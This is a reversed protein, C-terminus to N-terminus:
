ERLKYAVIAEKRSPSSKEAISKQHVRLTLAYEDKTIHGAQYFSKMNVTVFETDVGCMMAKRTNLMFQEIMGEELQADALEQFGQIYGLEAAQEFYKMAKELDVDIGKTGDRYICGLQFCAKGHGVDAAKQYWKMAVPINKKCDKDGLHHYLGLRYMDESSGSEARTFENERREKPSMLAYNQHVLGM